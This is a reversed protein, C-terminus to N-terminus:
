GMPITEISGEYGDPLRAEIEIGAPAWIRLKLTREGELRWSVDIRGEDPLPVSGRAWTLGSPRPEVVVKKWGPAASRVGLVYAGLFYGPAASWAHCHSRTLNKPDISGDKGAKPYMEWCATAGYEVMLGYHKRIDSVLHEVEGIAALAEYYFFSMFPSGIPVFREPPEVMYSALKSRREGSAIGCLLAVVQTQMSYIDSVRGDRHICDCYANHRESWLHRNIAEKLAGARERFIRAEDGAEALSALESAALLAKVLFMNQHSVIGDRPQDIPAWDLFNWGQMNLLGKEDLLESYHTLTHRVHPWVNRVFERDNTREYFELCGIAWFFTWNPIVSNMGSPVQDAFLPTQVGSGPVLNMCRKILDESGFLYYAILAENRSDGVWFTQEFSPCDVFTDEMCLKTTHRSINWIENLLADSSQFRGIESVPYHSLKLHFDYVRVPRTAQRVTLAIYRFGRRVPSVYKQRGDRCVYRLSNELYHMHQIWGDRMYEFGYLDIVTGEGADLEFSLYGTVERGFDVIVETDNGGYVPIEASGVGSALAQQLAAPVSRATSRKPWSALSIISESGVLGTPVPRLAEGLGNLEDSTRARGIRDYRDYLEREEDNAAAERERKACRMAAAHKAQSAEDYRHDIYEYLHFPGVSVFPSFGDGASAPSSLEFPKDCDIGLFVGRGHDHGALEIMLLNDGAELEATLRGSAFREYPHRVGNLILSQVNPSRYTLGFTAQAAEETQVIAALYGAYGYANANDRSEAAMQARADIISTWAIPRVENLAEIRSPYQETETLFPIDRPVLREWPACGAQGVIAAREWDSDAYESVTWRDDWLRADIRESFAQQFSMRPARPDQGRHRATKWSEDTAFPVAVCAGAELLNLQALLGGRGRIYYYNSIGFHMVLLAVTNKRGKRLLHGVDYADYSQEFPWCRVPGRGVQEGNVHLVYRSDATVFLRAEDWGGAPVEFEKRFCRWENRPSEEGASWIWKAAWDDIRGQM